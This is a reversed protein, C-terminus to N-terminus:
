ALQSHNTTKSGDKKRASCGKGMVCVQIVNYIKVIQMVKLDIQYNTRKVSLILHSTSSLAVENNRILNHSIGAATQENDKATEDRM